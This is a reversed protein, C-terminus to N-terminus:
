TLSTYLLQQRACRAPLSHLHNLFFSLYEHSTPIRVEFYARARLWGVERFEEAHRAERVQLKEQTQAPEWSTSRLDQLKVEQGNDTSVAKCSEAGPTRRSRNSGQPTPVDCVPKRSAQHTALAASIHGKQACNVGNCRSHADVHRQM